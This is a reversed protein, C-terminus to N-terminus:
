WRGFRQYHRVPSLPPDLQVSYIGGPAIAGRSCIQSLAREQAPTFTVSSPTARHYQISAPGATQSAPQPGNSQQEYALAKRIIARAQMKQLEPLADDLICPAALSAISLADDIYIQLEADTKTSPFLHRVDAPTLLAM